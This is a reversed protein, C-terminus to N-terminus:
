DGVEERSYMGSIWSIAALPKVTKEGSVGPLPM